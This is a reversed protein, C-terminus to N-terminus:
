KRHKMNEYIKEVDENTMELDDLNKTFYVEASALRGARVKSERDEMGGLVLYDVLMDACFWFAVWLMELPITSLNEEGWFLLASM